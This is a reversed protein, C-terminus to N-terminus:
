VNIVHMATQRQLKRIDKNISNRHIMQWAFVKMLSVWVVGVVFITAYMILDRVDEVAFYRVAAYIALGIFILGCVWVLIVISTMQRNYFEGLLSRLSNENPEDTLANNM